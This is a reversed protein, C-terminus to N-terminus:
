AILQPHYNAGVDAGLFYVKLSLSLTPTGCIDTSGNNIDAPLSPLM